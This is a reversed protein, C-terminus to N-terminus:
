NLGTSSVDHIANPFQLRVVDSNKAEEMSLIAEDAYDSVICCPYLGVIEITPIRIHVAAAKSLRNIEVNWFAYEPIIWIGDNRVEVLGLRRLRPQEAETM